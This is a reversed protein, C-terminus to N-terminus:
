LRKPVASHTQRRSQLHLSYAEGFRQYGCIQSCSTMIRFIVTRIKLATTVDLFDQKRPGPTSLSKPYIHRMPLLSWYWKSILTLFHLTADEPIYCRTIRQFAVSTESSYRIPRALYWGSLLYYRARSIWGQLHVRYTGGFRRNVKVPSCPTINWPVTNRIVVATLVEFKVHSSITHTWNVTCEPM